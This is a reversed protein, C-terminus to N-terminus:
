WRRVSEGDLVIDLHCEVNM